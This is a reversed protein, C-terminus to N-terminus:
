PNVVHSGIVGTPEQSVTNGQISPLNNFMRYASALREREEVAVGDAMAEKRIPPQGVEAMLRDLIEADPHPLTPVVEAMKEPDVRIGSTVAAAIENGLVSRVASVSLKKFQGRDYIAGTVTACANKVFAAAVKLTGKFLVDEPRPIAASYKGPLRCSRDYQDITDCLAVTTTPDEALMPNTELEGALKELRKAVEPAPGTARIRNRIMEAAEAPDYVGRGAQKQLFDDLEEEFAAGFEAAKDLIKTAIANRDTFRMQDRYSQLWVAATKVELSNRLPYRRVKHGSDDGWVIAFASDPLRDMGDSHMAAHKAQLTQVDGEIGWHRNFMLLREETWRAIKSHMDARKNLFFVNALYCAAKTHCPFKRAVPNAYASSPLRAPQCTQKTSAQKVYDPMPYVHSYTFLERHNQDDVQDLVAIM